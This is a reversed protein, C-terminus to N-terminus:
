TNDFYGHIPAAPPKRDGRDTSQIEVHVIAFSSQPCLARRDATLGVAYRM